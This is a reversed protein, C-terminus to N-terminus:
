KYAHLAFPLRRLMDGTSAGREVGGSSGRLPYDLQRLMGMTGSQMEMTGSQMEVSQSQPLSVPAAQESMSVSPVMDPSPVVEPVDTVVDPITPVVSQKPRHFAHHLVGPRQQRIIRVSPLSELQMLSASPQDAFRVVRGGPTQASFLKSRDISPPPTSNHPRNPVPRNEKDAIIDSFTPPRQSAIQPRVSRRQARPNDRRAFSPQPTRVSHVTLARYLQSLANMQLNITLFDNHQYHRCETCM